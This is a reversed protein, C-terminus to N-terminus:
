RLAPFAIEEGPFMESLVVLAYSSLSDFIVFKHDTIEDSLDSRRM